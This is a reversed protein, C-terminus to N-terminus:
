SRRQVRLTRIECPRLSVRARPGDLEIRAKPDPREALDVAQWSWEGPPNWALDVRRPRGAAEYLRVIASGDARPEIASVVVDPDDLELLRAGDKLTAEGSGAGAVALPPYAFRHQQAVTDADAAGHFRIALEARHSGPVQAGPTEFPPGAHGRRLALDGRSLFGVARLLTVALSTSGDPEPVAEVEANGRNAVSLAHAGDDIVAFSRQPCAGIPLESPREPGFADPRPAIPREVLEFASEVLFRKAAFPARAFLRLRHDRAGNELGLELDIRDLGASLRIRLSVPLTVSKAARATRDTSLSAPVRYSADVALAVSASGREVRIRVRQAREVPAAGPVPDFNYEDGRDGESVIRLADEIVVGDGRREIRVRGDRNVGIRWHESEIWAGGFADRGSAITSALGRAPGGFVRYSRLGHGPLRDVFRLRVRPPRWAEIEVTELQPDALERALRARTAELDLDGRPAAGLRARVRLREGARSSEVENVHYGLFERGIGPLISQALGRPFSAGWASGAAVVEADAPIREGAANRVHAIVRGRERDAPVGPVDLELEADVLAVGGANPNWVAFPDGAGTDGGPTPAIKAVWQRAVRELAEGAIEAVRDFRTEMQAHVADVSCGCISDHPHNELAVRWAFEITGPDATGGLAAIWASLPELSRVLLRDNAFDRQKQPMRASACGPLLPARLGSRLEGRHTPLDARVERRVREVYGLLTGIEATVGELKGLADALARPLAPEPLQHDSGNMVLLTPIKAFPALREIERALRQALLEGSGPLLQGNFYGNPLYGTLLSTGDPAQWRFVTEAVDAGVGRWLVAADFGFGAFIQPLQGVHGFQDPVYGLRTAGGFADGRALGLRLNRILAEGSVLWEDPLVTWPGVALRGARVLREIRERAHPRVALYDDLVITQGDLSFCRFGPDRELLELLGDLLGVLRARFQEHTRYWERDWHTHPVVVLHPM